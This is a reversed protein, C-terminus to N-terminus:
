DSVQITSELELFKGADDRLEQLYKNAGDVSEQGNRSNRNIGILDFTVANAYETAKSKIETSQLLKKAKGMNKKRLELDYTKTFELLGTFDKEDIRGQMYAVGGDPNTLEFKIPDFATDVDARSPLVIEDSSAAYAPRPRHLTTEVIMSTITSVVATAYSRELFKRRSNVDDYTDYVNNTVVDMNNNNDDDGDKEDGIMTPTSAM